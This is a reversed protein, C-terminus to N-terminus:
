STSSECLTEFHMKLKPDLPAVDPWSIRLSMMLFTLNSSFLEELALLKSKPLQSSSTTFVLGETDSIVVNVSLGIHYTPSTLHWLLDNESNGDVFSVTAAKSSSVDVTFKSHHKGRSIRRLCAVPDRPLSEFAYASSGAPLLYAFNEDLSRLCQILATLMVNEVTSACKVAIMKLPTPDQHFTYSHFEPSGEPKRAGCVSPVKNSIALGAFVLTGFGSKPTFYSLTNEIKGDSDPDRGVAVM